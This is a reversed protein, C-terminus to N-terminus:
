GFISKDIELMKQALQEADVKFSGDALSQRISEVKADDVEPQERLQQEVQKVAKARQSLNVNEGRATATSRAQEQVNAQPNSAKNQATKSAEGSGSKRPNLPSNNVGNIDTM